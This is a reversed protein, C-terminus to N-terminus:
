YEEALMITLIRRCLEANSPTPAQSDHDPYYYDIKFYLKNGLLVFVGFDHESYPDDDQPWDKFQAIAGRLQAFREVAQATGCPSDDCGTLLLVVGRTLTWTANVTEPLSRALDNLRRIEDTHDTM